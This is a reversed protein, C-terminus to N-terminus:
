QQQVRRRQQQQGPPTLLPAPEYGPVLSSPHTPARTAEWRV